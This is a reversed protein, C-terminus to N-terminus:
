KGLERVNHNLEEQEDFTLDCQSHQWDIHGPVCGTGEGGGLLLSAGIVIVIALIALAVIHQKTPM